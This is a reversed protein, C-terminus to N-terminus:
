NYFINGKKIEKNEKDDNVKISPRYWTYGNDTSFTFYIDRNSCYASYLIGESDIAIKGDSSNLSSDNLRHWESWTSGLDCSLIHYLDWVYPYEIDITFLLHLQTGKYLIRIPRFRGRQSNIKKPLDWTNGGNLSKSIYMDSFDSEIPHRWVVFLTDKKGACISPSINKGGLSFSINVPSTWTNGYDESRVFFIDKTQSDPNWMEYVCYLASVSDCCVCFPIIDFIPATDSISIWPTWTNGFDESRKYFVLRQVGDSYFVHLFHNQTVLIEGGWGLQVFESIRLDESWIMGENLSYSFYPAPFDVPANWFTCYLTDGYFCIAPGSAGHGFGSDNVRVNKSFPPDLFFFFLIIKTM